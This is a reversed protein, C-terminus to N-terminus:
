VHSTDGAVCRESNKDENTLKDFSGGETSEKVCKFLANEMQQIQYPPPPSTSNHDDASYPPLSPLQYAVFSQMQKDTAIHNMFDDEGFKRLKDLSLVFVCALIASGTVIFIMLVGQVERLPKRKVQSIAFTSVESSCFLEDIGDDCDSEGDCKWSCDIYHGNSCQYFKRSGINICEDYTQTVIEHAQYVADFSVRSSERADKVTKLEIRLKNANTQLQLPPLSSDLSTWLLSTNTVGAGDYVYIEQKGGHSRQTTTYKLFKLTIYHSKPAEVEWSCSIDENYVTNLVVISGFMGGLKSKCPDFFEYHLKVKPRELMLDVAFTPRRTYEITTIPSNSIVDGMPPNEECYDGILNEENARGEKIVLNESICSGPPLFFQLFSIKIRKESPAQIVWSCTKSSPSLHAFLPIEIIGAPSSISGGCRDEEFVAELSVKSTNEFSLEIKLVEAESFIVTGPTISNFTRNQIAKTNNIQYDTVVLLDSYGLNLSLISLAIKSGAQMKIIWQCNRHNQGAIDNEYDIKGELRNEFLFSCIGSSSGQASTVAIFATFVAFFDLKM